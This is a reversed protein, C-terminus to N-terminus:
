KLSPNMDLESLRLPLKVQPENEREENGGTKRRNEYMKRKGRERERDQTSM